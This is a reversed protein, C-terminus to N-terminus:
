VPLFFILNECKYKDCLAFIVSFYILNGCHYFCMHVRIRHTALNLQSSYHLNDQCDHSLERGILISDFAELSLQDVQLTRGLVHEGSSPRDLEGGPLEWILEGTVQVHYSQQLLIVVHISLVLEILLCM